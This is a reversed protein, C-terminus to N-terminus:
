FPPWSRACTPPVTCRAHMFTQVRKKSLTRAPFRDGLQRFSANGLIVVIEQIGQRSSSVALELTTFIKVFIDFLSLRVGLILSAKALVKQGFQCGTPKAQLAVYDTGLRM